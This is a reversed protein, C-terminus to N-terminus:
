ISIITKYLNSKKINDISDIDENIIYEQIIISLKLIKKEYIFLYNNKNISLIENFCLLKLILENNNENSSIIINQFHEFLLNYYKNNNYLNHNKLLNSSIKNVIDEFNDISNLNTYINKTILKLLLLLNNSYKTNSINGIKLPGITKKYAFNIADTSSPIYFLDKNVDPNNSMIIFESYLLVARESLYITPSLNNTYNILIWFVHYMVNCGSIVKLKDNIFKENLCLYTKILCTSFCNFLKHFNFNIHTKREKNIYNLLDKNTDLDM